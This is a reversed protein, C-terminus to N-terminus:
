RKKADKIRVHEDAYRIGRGKYPEPERYSRIDAAVQGVLQKDCGSIVIETQSLCKAEISIPLQHEVPHSFGISLIIRNERISARYGVGKLVLKKTFGKSVGVVMNNVLARSTGAQVWAGTVDIDQPFFTLRDGQQKVSVAEHLRYFLEGKVGRVVIERGNLNIEVGSPIIIPAKSVRSM